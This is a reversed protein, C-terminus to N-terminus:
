GVAPVGILFGAVPLSKNDVGVDVPGQGWYGARSAAYTLTGQDARQVADDPPSVAVKDM